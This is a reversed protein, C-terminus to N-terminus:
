EAPMESTAMGQMIGKESWIRINIGNKYTNVPIQMPQTNELPTQFWTLTQQTKKNQMLICLGMRQTLMCYRGGLPQWDTNKFPMATIPSFRLKPFKEKVSALSDLYIEPNLNHNQVVSIQEVLQKKLRHENNPFLMYGLSLSLVGTAVVPWWLFKPSPPKAKQTHKKQLRQLKKLQTKSLEQSDYYNKIAPKLAIKM